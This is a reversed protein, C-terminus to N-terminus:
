QQEIVVFFHWVEVNPPLWWTYHSKNLSGTQKILGCESTLIVKAIESNRFKRRFRKKKKRIDELDKCVSIGHGICSKEKEETMNSQLNYREPEEIVNPVFDGSNPPNNFVLRYIIGLAPQADNPPCNSLHSGFYGSSDYVM